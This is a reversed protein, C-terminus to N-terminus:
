VLNLLGLIFIVAALLVSAVIGVPILVNVFYSFDYRNNM